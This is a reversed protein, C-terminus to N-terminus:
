YQKLYDEKNLRKSQRINWYSKKDKEIKKSLFDKRFLKLILGIPFVTLYFLMILLIRTQIWALGRVFVMWIKYFVYAVRPFLFYIILFLFALCFLIIGTKINGKYLFCFGFVTAIVTLGFCLIKVQRKIKEDLSKIQNM